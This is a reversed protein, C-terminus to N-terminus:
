QMEYTPMSKSISYISAVIDNLFDKKYAARTSACEVLYTM